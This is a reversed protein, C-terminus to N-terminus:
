QFVMKSIIVDRFPIKSNLSKFRETYATMLRKKLDSVSMGRVTEYDMDSLLSVTAGRIAPSMDNILQVDRPEDAALALELLLYREKSGNSQLTIVVNKIEVFEVHKVDSSSFLSTLMGSEGEDKTLVHTGVITLVAAFAAAILAILLGLSFTKITM